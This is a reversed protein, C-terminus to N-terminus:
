REETSRPRVLGTIDKLLLEVDEKKYSTRM